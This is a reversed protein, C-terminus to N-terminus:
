ENETKLYDSRAFELILM